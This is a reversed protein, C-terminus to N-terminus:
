VIRRTIKLQTENLMRSAALPRFDQGSVNFAISNEMLLSFVAGGYGEMLEGFTMNTTIFTPRNEQVRARLVDDFVSEALNTKTKMEKGVDDILLIHSRKIRRQFWKEESSDKWGATYQQVLGTFTTSYCSYGAKTLDKLLLTAAMTKGTGFPGSLILGTGRPVRIDRDIFYGRARSRAEEAKYLDAWDLIQYNYGIGANLYNKYMQLQLQCDCEVEQVRKGVVVRIKGKKGCTPCFDDPDPKINPYRQYLVEADEPHLFRWRLSEGDILPSDGEDGTAGFEQLDAEGSFGQPINLDGRAQAEEQKERDARKRLNNLERDHLWKNGSSFYAMTVPSNDEPNKGKHSFFLWKVLLGAEGKYLDKLKKFVAIDRTQDIPLERQFEERYMVRVYELLGKPDLVEVRKGERLEYEDPEIFKKM